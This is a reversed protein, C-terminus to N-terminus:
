RVKGGSLIYDVDIYSDWSLLEYSDELLDNFTHPRDTSHYKRKSSDGCAKLTFEREEFINMLSYKAVKEDGEM